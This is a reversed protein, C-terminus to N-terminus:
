GSQQQFSQPPNSLDIAMKPWWSSNNSLYPYTKQPWGDVFDSFEGYRTAYGLEFLFGMVWCEESRIQLANIQAIESLRLCRSYVISLTGTSNDYVADGSGFAMAPVGYPWYFNDGFIWIARYLQKSYDTWLLDHHWGGTRWSDNYVLVSLRSGSEPFSLKGDNAVDFLIDLFNPLTLPPEDAPNAFM